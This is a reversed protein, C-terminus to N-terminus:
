DRRPHAHLVAPLLWDNLIVNLNPLTQQLEQVAAVNVQTGSLDLEALNTLGALHKLGADTVKTGNLRLHSLKSLPKLRALASDTIENDSIDLATLATLAKLHLLGVDSIQTNSLDLKTLKTLRKLHEVGIDTIQSHKLNLTDLETWGESHRTKTYILSAGSIHVEQLQTMCAIRSLTENTALKPRYLEVAIVHCFYDIGVLDILWPPTMPTAGYITFEDPGDWPVRKEGNYHVTGGADQIAAVAERQIRASRVIWGLWCGIVLVM